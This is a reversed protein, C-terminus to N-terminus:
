KVWGLVTYSGSGRYMDNVMADLRKKGNGKTIVYGYSSDSGFLEFIGDNGYEYRVVYGDPSSPSPDLTLAQAEALTISRATNTKVDYLFLSANDGRYTKYQDNPTVPRTEVTVRGDRVVYMNRYWNNWNDSSQDSYVFNYQPKVYLSPVFLALAIVIIFVVPLCIGVILPLNKKM